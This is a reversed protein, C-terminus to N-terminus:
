RVAIFKQVRKGKIDGAYLNGKSDMAVAHVWDTEGPNEQGLKPCWLELLKGSTAFRMFVQDTPPTGPPNLSPSTGCAWIEDKPTIWLGWTVILNRWQDLFAGSQDFVQIRANSRDGVYLRGKSDMCIAHPLNFEGPGAGLKGWSKVFKGTKDFHVVRNNGYGDSVFVDGAPSIAMDTPKNMHTQDEGEVGPTGLTLLLKGEPTFKRVTHLGVDSLWVNGEADFKIHHARKHELDPWTKLLEGAPSYIQLNPASRTFVWVNDKADVAVGSVDGWTITAPKKPWAPDVKFGQLGEATKSQGAHLAGACIALALCSLVRRKM